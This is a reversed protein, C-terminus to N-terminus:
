RKPNSYSRANLVEQNWEHIQLALFPAYIGAYSEGTIYLVNSMFEPWNDYFDRMATFTDVSQSHDTDRFDQPTEGTSFGVGAPSELYLVSSNLNWPYPNKQVKTDFDEIVCPGHEQIFGLMSSCGPGGNFWVLLPDTKPKSQSEVFVYHLKRTPSQTRLYGSYTRSPFKCDTGPLDTIQDSVRAAYSLGALLM